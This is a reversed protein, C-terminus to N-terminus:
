RGLADIELEKPLLISSRFHVQDSPFDKSTTSMQALASRGTDGFDVNLRSYGGQLRIEPRPRWDITIEGGTSTAEGLSTFALPVVVHPVPAVVVSPMGVTSGLLNSYNNMFLSVDVSMTPVPRVRYGIEYSQLVEATLGEGSTLSVLQPLPSQASPPIVVPTIAAASEARSPLRVARATAGWLTQGKPLNLRLRANPQFEWGTYDNHELKSGITVRVADGRVAIDDQIFRSWLALVDHSPNMSVFSSNVIEDSSRRYTGGYVVLHAGGLSRTQQLDIDMTLRDEDLMVDSFSSREVTVQLASEGSTTDRSWRGLVSHSTMKGVYQQLSDYPQSLQPIVVGEDARTSVSSGVLTLRSQIDLQADLRGGVRSGQWSDSINSFNTVETGGRSFGNVDLRYTAKGGIRGGYRLSAGEGLNGAEAVVM